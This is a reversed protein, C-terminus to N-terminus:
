LLNPTPSDRLEVDESPAFGASLNDQFAGLIVSGIVKIVSTRAELVSQNRCAPMVLLTQSPASNKIRCASSHQDQAAKLTQQGGSHLKLRQGGSQGQGGLGAQVGDGQHPDGACSAVDGDVTLGASACTWQQCKRDVCRHVQFQLRSLEHKRRDVEELKYIFLKVKWFHPDTSVLLELNLNWVRWKNGKSSLDPQENIVILSNGPVM